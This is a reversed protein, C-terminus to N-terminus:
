ESRSALVSALTPLGPRTGHKARLVGHGLIIAGVRPLRVLRARFLHGKNVVLDHANGLVLHRHTGGGGRVAAGSVGCIKTVRAEATKGSPVSLSKWDYQYASASRAASSLVNPFELGLPVHASHRVVLDHLVVPLM